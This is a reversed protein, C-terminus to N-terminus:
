NVRYRIVKRGIHGNLDMGELVVKYNGSGDANFFKLSASGLSDTIIYPNWYITSRLDAMPQAEKTDYVPVYFEKPKLYGLPMYNILGPTYVNVVSRGGGRKTNIVIVGGVGYSGYIATYSPTKLIEVSAVDQPVIASLLDSEVYMGDLVIQIPTGMNRTFYPVGNQFILGATMGQLAIELTPANQLQEETIVRDANGPGNLNTSHELVKAKQVVKVEDLLITKSVLGYKLLEEYQTKNNKLYTIMSSNINYNLDGNQYPNATAPYGNDDMIIEVFKKNKITRAQVVFKTSDPFMLSDVEFRGEHDTKAQMIFLGASSSFITVNGEEVPKKNNLVKGSIKLTKESKFNLPPMQNTVIDEWKFRRWGQTLMLLDLNDLKEENQNHFYYNPREIYGQLDSNLLLESFITHEEEENVPVKTEDTVSVSFSGLVPFNNPDKGQIELLVSDRKNYTNKDTQATLRLFNQKNNFILREALPELNDNFLTVQIIGTPFNDMPLSFAFGRESLKSQASYIVNGSSQLIINFKKDLHESQFVQNPIVRVSLTDLTRKFVNFVVGSTKAKPITFKKESGDAFAVVAEYTKDNTTALYFSGMGLHKTNFKAVKVGDSDQIYGSVEKGLGDKGVAKFAVRARLNEVLDGGEPFFQVDIDNSESIIPISKRVITHDAIKINANLIGKNSLNPKNNSFQINVNGADDTIGKGKHVQKNELEVTYNVEKNAYPYDDLNKFNLVAKVVDGNSSKEFSYSTTTILQSSRIDAVKFSHDYFYAESFNRMWNSYARLRYNGENLSDALTINGWGFGAILPIKIIKKLIDKQDILEVYLVNSVSSPKLNKADVLYAKFWIEDGIAYYPKDTHLYVKEQTYTETYKQFRQLLLQTKDEQFMFSLLMTGLLLIGSFLLKSKM